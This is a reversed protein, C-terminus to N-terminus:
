VLGFRIYNFPTVVPIREENHLAWFLGTEEDWFDQIMRNAIAAARKRWMSSEAHLGLKEAIGALSGMQICLYTNLDHNLRANWLGM